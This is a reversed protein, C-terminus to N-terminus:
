KLIPTLQGVKVWNKEPELVVSIYINGDVIKSSTAAKTLNAEIAAPELKYMAGNRADIIIGIIGGFVLNGWMWGSTARKMVVEYPEYGQLEIVVNHNNKRKLDAVLPTLGKHEGNITVTARSPISSFSVEQMSSNMISACGVVALVALVPLPLFLHKISFRM